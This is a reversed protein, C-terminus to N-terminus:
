ISFKWMSSFQASQESFDNVKLAYKSIELISDNEGM